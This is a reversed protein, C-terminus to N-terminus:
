NVHLYHIHINFNISYLKMSSPYMCIFCPYNIVRYIIIIDVYFFHKTSSSRTVGHLLVHAGHEQEKSRRVPAIATVDEDLFQVIAHTDPFLYLIYVCNM